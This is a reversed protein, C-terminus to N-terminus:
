KLAPFLRMEPDYCSLNQLNLFFSACCFWLLVPSRTLAGMDHFSGPAIWLTLHSAICALLWPWLVSFAM